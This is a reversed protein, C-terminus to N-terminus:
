WNQWEPHTSYVGALPKLILLQRAELACTCRGREEDNLCGSGPEADDEWPAVSLGCSYWSDGDCYYHGWGTVTAIIARKAACEALVRSPDHTGIHVIVDADESGVVDEKGDANISSWEEDNEPVVQWEAGWGFAARKAHDEDESLRALLFETITM